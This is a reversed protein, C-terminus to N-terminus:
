SKRGHWDALVQLEKSPDLGAQWEHDARSRHWELTDKATDLPSRFTLGAGVARSNDIAMVNAADADSSPVWM